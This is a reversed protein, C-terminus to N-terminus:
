WGRAIALIAVICLLFLLITLLVITVTGISISRIYLDFENRLRPTEPTPAPPKWFEGSYNGRIKSSRLPVRQAPREEDM